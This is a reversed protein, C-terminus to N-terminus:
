IRGQQQYIPPSQKIKDLTNKRANEAQGEIEKSIQKGFSPSFRPISTSLAVASPAHCIACPAFRAENM